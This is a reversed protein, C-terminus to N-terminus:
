WNIGPFNNSLERRDDEDTDDNWDVPVRAPIVLNRRMAEGRIARPVAAKRRIIHMMINSLHEDDVQHLALTQGAATRWVFDLLEQNESVLQKLQNIRGDLSAIENIVDALQEAAEHDYDATSLLKGYKKFDPHEVITSVQKDTNTDLVEKTQKKVM